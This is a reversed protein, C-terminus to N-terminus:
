TSIGSRTPIIPNRHGGSHSPRHHAGVASCIGGRQPDPLGPVSAPRLYAVDEDVMQWTLRKYGMRTHILAFDRVAAVEEPTPLPAPRGAQGARDALAGRQQRSKWRYYTAPSLALQGLVMDMSQESREQAKHVTDLIL